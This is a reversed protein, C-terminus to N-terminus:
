GQTVSHVLLSSHAHDACDEMKKKVTPVVKFCFQISLFLKQLPSLLKAPQQEKLLRQLLFTLFIDMLGLGVSVRPKHNENM